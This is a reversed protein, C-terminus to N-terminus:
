RLTGSAPASRNRPVVEAFGSSISNRRHGSPHRKKFDPPGDAVQRVADLTAEPLRRIHQDLFERSEQISDGAFLAELWTLTEFRPAAMGMAARYSSWPWESAADVVGADVPNRLVYCIANRLYSADGIVVSTYRGELVHGTTRHRWNEYQTYLGDIHQMLRHINARPTHVVQHFHNSMLSYVYCEAGYKEFGAAAIKLFQRRDRDDVFIRQKRNGRAMVHYIAGCYRIRHRRAM